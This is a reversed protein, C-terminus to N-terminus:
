DKGGLIKNMVATVIGAAIEVKGSLKEYSGDKFVLYGTHSTPTIDRTDNAFVFDCSNKKLLAYATEILTGLDVHNLLKFGVLVADPQAKRILSIIKPTKTLNIILGEVDSSIKGDGDIGSGKYLSQKILERIQEHSLPVSRELNECLIDAFSDATTVNRKTFDSVAMCHVIADVKNLSFIQELADKLDAVSGIRHTEIKDSVPPALASSGCVYFIKNVSEGLTLFSEAIRVGLGGTSNNSIQRVEDIKEVTGGATILVNM